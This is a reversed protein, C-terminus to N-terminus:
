AASSQLRRQTKSASTAQIFDRREIQASKRLRRRRIAGGSGADRLQARLKVCTRIPTGSRIEDLGVEADLRL